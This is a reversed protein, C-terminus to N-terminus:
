IFPDFLSTIRRKARDYYEPNDISLKIAKNPCNHACSGCGRCFKGIQAVGPLNASFAVPAVIWDRYKYWSMFFKHRLASADM